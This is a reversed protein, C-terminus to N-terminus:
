SLKKLKKSNRIFEFDKETLPEHITGDYSHMEKTIMFPNSIDLEELNELDELFIYNVSHISPSSSLTCLLAHMKLM